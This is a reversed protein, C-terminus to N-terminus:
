PQQEEPTSSFNKRVFVLMQECHANSLTGGFKDVCYALAVHLPILINQGDAYIQDLERVIGALDVGKVYYSRRAAMAASRDRPSDGNLRAVELAGAMVGDTVGLLYAEKESLSMTEWFRGNLSGLTISDQVIQNTVAITM